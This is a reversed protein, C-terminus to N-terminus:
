EDEFAFLSHAIHLANLKFIERKVNGFTSRNLVLSPFHKPIQRIHNLFIVWNCSFQKQTDAEIWREFPVHFTPSRAPPSTFRTFLVEGGYRILAHTSFLSYCFNWFLSVVNLFVHANEFTFRFLITYLFDFKATQFNKKTNQKQKHKEKKEPKWQASDNCLEM